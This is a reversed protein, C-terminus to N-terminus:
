LKSRSDVGNLGDLLFPSVYKAVLEPNNIHVDHNGEVVRVRYNKNPFSAEDFLYEYGRCGGLQKTEASAIVLTPVKSNLDRSTIFEKSFPPYTINKNRQDYTLRIYGNGVPQSWRELTAEAAERSLARSSMLKEIVTEKKHKPATELPANYLEYNDFYEIFKKKYWDAFKDPSVHQDRAIPDLQVFRSVKEPYAHVYMKGLFSGMSHGLLVFTDWRFHKIVVHMSYMLDHSSMMLGPPMHDSRGSGPYEMGIYYFQKPLLKILPRFSAASDLHGHCVLVPPDLCNGWAIVCIRGWPAEIFWEKEYLVM